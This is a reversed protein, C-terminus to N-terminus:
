LQGFTKVTAGSAARWTMTMPAALRNGSRPVSVVLLNGVVHTTITFAAGHNRDFGGIKGASYHLTVTAVGDPVLTEITTHGFFGLTGYASASEITAATGAGGGGSGDLLMMGESRTFAGCGTYLVPMVYYATGSIVRARRIYNVFIERGLPNLGRKTFIAKVSAPLADAPTAPRRLVGLISLLSQSPAGGIFPKPQPCASASRLAASSDAVAVVMVAIVTTMGAVVIRRGRKLPGCRTPVWSGGNVVIFV